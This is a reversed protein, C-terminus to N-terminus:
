AGVAVGEHGLKVWVETASIFQVIRGVIQTNAVETVTVIEDDTAYVVDGVNAITLGSCPLRFVGESKVVAKVAGAIGASNDIGLEAVGAFISGAEAACPALYGAANIKCLAGQYIIDSAVVPHEQLVGEKENVQRKASLAM